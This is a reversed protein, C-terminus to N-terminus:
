HEQLVKGAAHPRSPCIKGSRSLADLGAISVALEHHGLLIGFLTQEFAPLHPPPIKEDRKFMKGWLVHGLRYMDACLRKRHDFRDIALECMVGVMDALDYEQRLM